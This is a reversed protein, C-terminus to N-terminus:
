KESLSMLPSQRGRRRNVLNWSRKIDKIDEDRVNLIPSSRFGFGLFV